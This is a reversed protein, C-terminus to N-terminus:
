NHRLATLSNKKEGFGAGAMFDYFDKKTLTKDNLLHNNYNSEFTNEREEMKTMRANQNDSAEILVDVKSGLTDVITYLDDIKEKKEVVTNVGISLKAFFVIATTIGIGYGAYAAIKKLSWKCINKTNLNVPKM